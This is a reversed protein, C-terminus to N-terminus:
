ADKTELRRIRAELRDVDDRLRSVGAAFQETEYRTPLQRSEEQLYEKVNDAMINGTNRSWAMFGRAFEGIHGAATDGVVRALEEEPDPKAYKLLKQFNQVTSIDGRLEIDGRRILDADGSAALRALGGISGSVTADAEADDAMRLEFGAARFVFDMALSSDRVGVRVVHGDLKRCLESATISDEISHNLIRALPRLLSELPDM